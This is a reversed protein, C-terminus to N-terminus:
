NGACYDHTTGRVDQCVYLRLAPQKDPPSNEILAKILDQDNFTRTRLSRITASVADIGTIDYFGKLFLFGQAREAVYDVFDYGANPAIYLKNSAEIQKLEDTFYSVGDDLGTTLYYEMFHAFGEEFWTPFIGYLTSHTIEHIITPQDVYDPAISIFEDYSLGAYIDPLDTVSIFLFRYPFKGVIKEVRPLAEAAIDLARRGADADEASVLLVMEGSEPLQLVDELQYQITKALEPGIPPANDDKLSEAYAFFVGRLQAAETDDLGDTYWPQESAFELADAVSQKEGRIQSQRECAQIAAILDLRTQTLDAYWPQARVEDALPRSMATLYKSEAIQKLGDAATTPTPAPTSTALVENASVAPAAGSGG